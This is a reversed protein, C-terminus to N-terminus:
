QQNSNRNSLKRLVHTLKWSKSNYVKDLLNEANQIRLQMQDLEAYKAECILKERDSIELKASKELARVELEHIISCYYEDVEALELRIKDLAEIAADANLTNCKALATYGDIALKSLKSHPVAQATRNQHRLQPDLFSEAETCKTVLDIELDMTAFASQLTEKWNQLLSEYTIVSRPTNRSDFEMELVHRLWLLCGKDTSFGDRRSLSAAVELPNRVIMLAYPSTQLHGFIQFWMPLLRCMRPDKIGWTKLNGFYGKLLESIQDSAVKAEQTEHWKLPMPTVSDWTLGLSALLAKHSLVIERLEFYGKQNDKDAAFHECGFKYGVTDLLGALASTGSRHMGLVILAKSSSM